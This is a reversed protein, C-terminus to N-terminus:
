EKRRSILLPSSALRSAGITKQSAVPAAELELMRQCEEIDTKVNAIYQSFERYRRLYEKVADIYDNHYM